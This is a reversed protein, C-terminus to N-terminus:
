AAAKDIHWLGAKVGETTILLGLAAMGAIAYDTGRLPATGLVTQLLPLYQAALQLLLAGLIGALLWPNSTLPERLLSRRESRMAFVYANQFLVTAFLVLNRAEDVTAGQGLQWRFLALACITMYLAAPLMLALAQADILPEDPRRPPRDLEDGEGRGFGLAVDQIGNTVVNLWLLQVATLPVPLGLLLAGLILGIEALGTALLVIVIKRINAYTIRGEEVGAVISAFNDDTLILDAAGRAVDTGCRGMAVGIHAAQLAPADNVGDGTVAVLEGQRQLADVIALKQAPEVRAFVRSAAIRADRRDPDAELAAIDRGTMVEQASAALGLTRAITLATAPHDGTVMRVQIGARQCRAVADAAEPRLPDFLGVHGLLTLGSPHAPDMLPAGSPLTAMAVALVRYGQGTLAEIAAGRAQNAPRCMPLLTENAGKVHVVRAGDMEVIVAAFKRHPEYPMAAIRTARRRLDDIDIGIRRAFCLLAIDVTDGTGTGDATLAADNCLAATQGLARVAADEAWQAPGLSIGDARMVREVSQRNLTLTGTKDSAILTCAGLGEVAPLARVIVHRQAMRQTAAALAVTVAVPLGEPIASVALAIALFFIEAAPMGQAAQVAAVLLIALMAYVALWRSFRKLRIVLPPATDQAADLAGAIRGLATNAGTAVVLATGRGEVVTTGAHLMTVRDGLGAAAPVVAVPDKAVPLSEGTLAAEEVRLGTADLLRADASLRMGSEVEIIDGPVLAEAAMEHVAGARRVRAMQRIMSRLAEASAGARGEQVTGIIANLLLVVLIFGADIWAGLAASVIAAALLLYILPSRFQRVFLHLFGPRAKHPLINPGYRAQRSRVEAEDLGDASTGLAALCTAIDTAHWESPLAMDGSAKMPGAM